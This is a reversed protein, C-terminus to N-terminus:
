GRMTSSMAAACCETWMMWYPKLGPRTASLKRGTRTARAAAPTWTRIITSATPDATDPTELCISSSRDAAPIWIVTCSAIGGRRVPVMPSRRILQVLVPRPWTSWRLSYTMSPRMPQIPPAPMSSWKSSPRNWSRNTRTVPASIPWSCAVKRPLKASSPPRSGSPVSDSYKGPAASGPAISVVKMIFQGGPQNGTVSAASRSISPARSRSSIM